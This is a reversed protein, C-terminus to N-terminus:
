RVGRAKPKLWDVWCNRYAAIEAESFEFRSLLERLLETHKFHEVLQDSRASLSPGVRWATLSDHLPSRASRLALLSFTLPIRTV